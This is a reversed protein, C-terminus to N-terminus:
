QCLNSGLCHNSTCDSNNNCGQGSPCRAPCINGGCDTGTENGDKMGDTCTAPLTVCQNQSTDCYNGSSCQNNMSCDTRCATAGCVYPACMMTGAGCAGMGDCMGSLTETGNSCTGGCTTSTSAQLCM